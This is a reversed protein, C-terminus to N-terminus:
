APCHSIRRFLPPMSGGAANANFPQIEKAIQRACEEGEELRCLSHWKAAKGTKPDVVEEASFLYFRKRKQYIRTTSLSRRNIRRRNM